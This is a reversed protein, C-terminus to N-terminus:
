LIEIQPVPIVWKGGKARFIKEKEMIEKAFNWAFCVAYDPLQRTLAGDDVVPIDTGPCTKYWKQVTNDCVFRIHSRNFRCANLWQTSKASAGYGVIVKGEGARAHIFSALQDIRSRAEIGFAKWKEAVANESSIFNQVSPDPEHGSNRHRLMLLICGGHIDYHMVKHLRLMTGKLLAEVARVSVYSLHEHYVQDWSVSSLQDMVYPVELCVLTNNSCVAELGEVFEKWNDVHAFVHRALIVHPRDLNAIVWQECHVSFPAPLSMAGRKNAIQTLNFAPDIGMCKAGHEQFFLMLTGDNSGIELLTKFDGGEEGIDYRLDAFHRKMTDSNSTVYPYNRYLVEPNVVVSLQALGCNPCLMVKLPAYGACEDGTGCFDNALPMVGLDFVPQLSAPKDYAGGAATSVKLTSLAASGTGCARCATHLKYM